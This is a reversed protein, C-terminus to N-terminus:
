GISKRNNSAAILTSGSGMFPDLIVDGVFSFLKICRRSGICKVLFNCSKETQNYHELKVKKGCYLCRLNKQENKMKTERANESITPM